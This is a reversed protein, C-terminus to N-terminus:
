RRDGSVGDDKVWVELVSWSLRASNFGEVDFRQFRPISKRLANIKEDAKRTARPEQGSWQAYLWEFLPYEVRQIVALARPSDQWTATFKKSSSTMEWYRDTYFVLSPETYGTAVLTTDSPFQQIIENVHKAPCIKSFEQSGLWFSTGALLIVPALLRPSIPNSWKWLLPLLSLLGLCLIIWGFLNRLPLREAPWDPVMFFIALGALLVWWTVQVAWFFRLSFPRQLKGSDLTLGLLLAIAPFAPLTYHPLQTKYFLFILFPAAAWSALFAHFRNKRWRITGEVAAAGAWSWWPLFSLFITLFYYGPIISRSNFSGIGRDIVHEGMGTNWYAGDTALLAPLGWAIIPILSLGITQLPRITKWPLKERGFVWRYFALTVGPVIYALPGKALFALGLSLALAWRWMRGAPEKPSQILEYLAISSLSLFLILPMDAVALRGHLQVQMITLWVLASLVGARAQGQRRLWWWLLAAIGLSSLLSHLRAGGEGQGLLLFGGRMMWYTLPPKDFRYDGNFWPIIWDGREIMEVTARTFRPEDRDILPLDFIGLFLSFAAALLALHLSSSWKFQSMRGSPERSGPSSDLM